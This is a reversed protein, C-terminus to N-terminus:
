SFRCRGNLRRPPFREEHGVGATRSVRESRSLQTTLRGEVSGLHVSLDRRRATLVGGMQFLSSHPPAAGLCFAADMPLTAISM